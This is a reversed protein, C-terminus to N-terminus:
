ETSPNSKPLTVLMEPTLKKTTQEPLMVPREPAELQKRELDRIVNIALANLPAKGPENKETM